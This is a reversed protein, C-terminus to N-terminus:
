IVLYDLITELSIVKANPLIENMSKQIDYFYKIPTVIIAEVDELGVKPEYVEVPSDKISLANRDIAYSVSIDGKECVRYFTKGLEGMGYIAIARVKNDILYQVPNKGMLISNLLRNLLDFSIKAPTRNDVKRNQQSINVLKGDSYYFNDRFYKVTGSLGRHEIEKEFIDWFDNKEHCSFFRPNNYLAYGTEIEKIYFDSENLLEILFKGKNNKPIILSVGRKDYADMGPICGWYDGIILDGQHNDNKFACSYCKKEKYHVFAYGYDSDYFPEEFIKGNEFEVHINFHEWGKDKNRTTFFSINSGAKKELEDLYKEHIESKTVGDCILEITYLNKTGIKNRNLFSKLIAIDCGLGLFLVKTDSIIKSIDVFYSNDKKEFYKSGQFAELEEERSACSYFAKRYDHSYRVGYVAGYRKVFECSIASAAGGSACNTNENNNLHGAYTIM